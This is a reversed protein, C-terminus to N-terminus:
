PSRRANFDKYWSSKLAIKETLCFYMSNQDITTIGPVLAHLAFFENMAKQCVPISRRPLLGACAARLHVQQQESCACCCAKQWYSSSGHELCWMCLM